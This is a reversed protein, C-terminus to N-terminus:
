KKRRRLKSYMSNIYEIFAIYHETELEPSLVKDISRKVKSEPVLIGDRWVMGTEQARKRNKSGM